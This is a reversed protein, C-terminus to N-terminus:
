KKSDNDTNLHMLFHDKGKLARLKFVNSRM